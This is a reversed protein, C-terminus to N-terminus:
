LVRMLIRTGLVIFVVIVVVAACALWHRSTPEVPEGCYACFSSVALIQKKCSRCITVGERKEQEDWKKALRAPVEEERPPLIEDDDDFM